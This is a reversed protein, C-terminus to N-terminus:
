AREFREITYPGINRSARGNRILDTTLRAVVPGLTYGSSTVANFFGPMKPVEGIIPAGDININMAAWARIVHIGSLAPLVRQAVWLNGAVSSALVTCSNTDGDVTGPWGGGIIIGGTNAQKLSLHRDSHAVLHDICPQVPETVIMQLPAGHVPIWQGVMQSVRAAWPGAANVVRGAYVPGCTTLVRFRAGLKEIAQVERGTAFRAGRGRAARAVAYTARLPDIKGESACYEAGVIDRSLSPALAEVERQDIIRADIGYRGELALKDRLFSLQEPTEALMLGGTIRIGLDDNLERAINQWLRVSEPGLPLTEAAPKGGAQAKRGFDFSL